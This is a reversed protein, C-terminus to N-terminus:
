ACLLSGLCFRGEERSAVAGPPMGLFVEDPPLKPLPDLGVPLSTLCEFKSEEHRSTPLGFDSISNWHSSNSSACTFLRAM